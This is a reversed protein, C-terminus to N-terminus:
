RCVNKTYLYKAGSVVALVVAVVVACQWGIGLWIILLDVLLIVAKVIKRKTYAEKLVECNGQDKMNKACAYEYGAIVCLALILIALLPSFSKKVFAVSIILFILLVYVAINRLADKYNVEPDKDNLLIKFM